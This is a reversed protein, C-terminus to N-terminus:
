TQSGKLLEDMRKALKPCKGSPSEERYLSELEDWCATLAVWQPVKWPQAIRERLRPDADLMKVCRAFDALDHPYSPEAGRHSMSLCQAMYRSSLGADDCHWWADLGMGPTAPQYPKEFAAIISNAADVVANFQRPLCDKIKERKSLHKTIAAILDIQSIHSPESKEIMDVGFTM